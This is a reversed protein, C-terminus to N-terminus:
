KLKGILEDALHLRRKKLTEMEADTLTSHPDEEYRCIEKDLAEYDTLTKAFFPDRIKLEHIKATWEPHDAALSHHAVHM